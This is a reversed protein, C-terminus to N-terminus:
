IRAGDLWVNVRIGSAGVRTKGARKEMDARDRYTESWTAYENPVGQDLSDNTEVRAYYSGDPMTTIDIIHYAYLDSRMKEIEAPVSESLERTQRIETEYKDILLTLRNCRKDAILWLVFLVIMWLWSVILCAIMLEHKM